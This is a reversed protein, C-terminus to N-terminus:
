LLDKYADLLDIFNKPTTYVKRRLNKYFKECMKEVSQHVFVCCNALRDRVENTLGPFELHYFNM